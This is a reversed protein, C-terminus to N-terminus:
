LVDRLGEGGLMNLWQFGANYPIMKERYSLPVTTQGCM